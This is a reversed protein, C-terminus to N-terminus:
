VRSIHLYIQTYIVLDLYFFRGDYYVKADDVSSLAPIMLYTVRVTAVDYNILKMSKLIKKKYMPVIAVSDRHEYM